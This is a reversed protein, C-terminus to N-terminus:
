NEAPHFSKLTYRRILRGHGINGMSVSQIGVNNQLTIRFIGSQEFKLSLTDENAKSYRQFSVTGLWVQGLYNKPTLIGSTEILRFGNLIDASRVYHVDSCATPWSDYKETGVVREEVTYLTTDDLITDATITWTAEGIIILSDCGGPRSAYLYYDYVWTNGVKLPFFDFKDPQPENGTDSCSLAFFVTAISLGLATRM